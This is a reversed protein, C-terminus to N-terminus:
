SDDRHGADMKCFIKCKRGVTGAANISETHLRCVAKYTLERRKANYLALMYPTLPNTM